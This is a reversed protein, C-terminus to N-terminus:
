NTVVAGSLHEFGRGDEISRGSHWGSYPWFLARYGQFVFELRYRGCQTVEFSLEELTLQCSAIEQPDLWKWDSEKTV